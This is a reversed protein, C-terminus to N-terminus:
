FSYKAGVTNFICQSPMERYFAAAAEFGSCHMPVIFDPAIQKIEAITRDVLPKKATMLHFGGMVAHVKEVGTIKQAHMVTNVIGVHACSSLVVLGKGKVHFVLGQEGKFDDVVIQGDREILSSAPIKEFDTVKEVTGTLYGGPVIPTPDTNEIIDVFDLEEIEQRNLAGFDSISGDARKAYRHNFTEPGLYLPIKEYHKGRGGHHTSAQDSWHDYRKGHILGAQEGYYRLMAVLNGFHDYHGHSLGFAEVKALDIELLNMNKKIGDFDLGYDFLFAHSKGGIVTEIYYSLGHEAHISVNPGVTYRTLLSNTSPTSLFYNDALIVIKLKEVEPLTIVGGYATGVKTLLGSAMLTAAAVASGQLFDRRSLEKCM